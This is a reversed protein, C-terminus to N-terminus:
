SFYPPSRDQCNDFFNSSHSKEKEKVLITFVSPKHITVNTIVCLFAPNSIYAKNSWTLKTLETKPTQKLPLPFGKGCDIKEVKAPKESLLSFGGIFIIVLTVILLKYRQWM